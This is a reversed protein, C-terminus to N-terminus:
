APPRKQPPPRDLEIMTKDALEVALRAVAEPCSENERCEDAHDKHDALLGTLAAATLRERRGPLVRLLTLFSAM